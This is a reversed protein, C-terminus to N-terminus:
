SDIKEPEEPFEGKFNLEVATIPKFKAKDSRPLLPEPAGLEQLHKRAIALGYHYAFPPGDCWALTFAKTAAAIAAEHHDQDREIQALVNLADAHWLRYPGREALVWVQDLLDHAVGFQGKRRRIEGMAVLAPLEEEVLNIARARGLALQLREEAMAFQRCTVAATGLLRASAIFDAELKAANALDWAKAAQALALKEDRAWINCQSLAALAIGAGQIQKSEMFGVFSRFLASRSEFYDGSAAAALGFRQLILCRYFKDKVACSIELANRIVLLSEYLKGIAFLANSYNCSCIFLNVLDKSKYASEVLREMLITAKQPEGSLHSAVALASTAVEKFRKLRPPNEFGNDFFLNMLELRLRNAGLRYLTAFHICRRFERFAEDFRGLNILVQVLEVDCTLDDLSEVQEWKKPKPAIALFALLEGYTRKKGKTSLSAWVVSRVIPHLDYRNAFKDWGVIGRDELKTLVEDLTQDSSCPRPARTKARRVTKKGKRTSAPNIKHQQEVLLARLTCWTVPMRFAALTHLVRWQTESLGRLAYELIHTEANKLPLRSPNFHQNARRWKDYDGPASRFAAVEGSLARILLPYNQVSNFVPLLQERSGSVKFERWLKLSDDDNLGSLDKRFCGPCTHGTEVQLEAPFLRTSVLVRSHNMRALRRLFQGAGHDTTRRLQHKDIFSKGASKGLCQAQDIYNATQEDLDDDLMQAADMRAYALLTRELGDLVLLFPKQDLIRWIQDERDPSKMERVAKESQGSVYALARIIFNEWHADSEYFSWWLRGVLNPLENPAIDNFWKWALASKGMGGIAVLNFIRTNDPVQKNTTVWDTLLNLEAQRGVVDKTALLSYPHAIYPEPPKSILNPPHFDAVPREGFGEGEREKLDALAHIVESRLDEPSKFERRGRGKSAREKLEALKKQADKDLEVTEITFLHDKHILFVLIPIKREVARIFEMETISIDRGEPQHGYRWAFIGIYIDAKDIMEMSVRIADADRAPLHEMGIPFVGERLCANFAEQRHKPLDIATSSIVATMKGPKNM